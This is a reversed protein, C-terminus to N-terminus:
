LIYIVLVHVHRYACSHVISQLFGSKSCLLYEFLTIVKKSHPSMAVCTSLKGFIYEVRMVKVNYTCTDYRVLCQM